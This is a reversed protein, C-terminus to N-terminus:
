PQRVARLEEVAAAFLEDDAPDSPPHLLVGDALDAYREGLVEALQDYRGSVVVADLVEDTVAAELEEWRGEKTMSRLRDGLDEWGHLELTRRYAPTSFLFGLMARSRSRAGEVAADDRGTAVMGGVVVRVDSPSRGASTLGEALAPLCL